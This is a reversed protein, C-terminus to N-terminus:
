EIGEFQTATPLGQRTIFVISLWIYISNLISSQCLDISAIELMAVKEIVKPRLSMAERQIGIESPYGKQLSDLLITASAYDGAQFAQDAQNYLERADPNESQGCSVMAVVAAISLINYNM